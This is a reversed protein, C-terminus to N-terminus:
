AATATFIEVRSAGGALYMLGGAFVVTFVAMIGLTKANSHLNSLVTIAAIPLLCAVLTAVSSTFLKMRHESFTNLPWAKCSCPTDQKNAKWLKCLKLWFPTECLKLWFPMKCLELWFPAWENAVWGTLGAVKHIPAPFILDLNKDELKKPWVLRWLIQLFQREISKKRPAPGEPPTLPGWSRSGSGEICRGGYREDSIWNRLTEVNIPDAKQFATIQSYQILAKDVSVASDFFMRGFILSFTSYKNLVERIEAILGFQKRGVNDLRKSDLLHDVRAALILDGGVSHPPNDHDNWEQIQLKTRLQDLEGQYYLLSKINLDRFSPFAELGPNDAIIKTVMPWGPLPGERPNSQPIIHKCNDCLTPPYGPPSDSHQLQAMNQDRVNPFSLHKDITQIRM